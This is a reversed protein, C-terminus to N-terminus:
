QPQPQRAQREEALRRRRNIEELFRETENNARRPREEPMPRPLRQPTDNDSKLALFIKALWTLAVFAFIIIGMVTEVDWMDCRTALASDASKQKYSPNGIRGALRVSQCDM